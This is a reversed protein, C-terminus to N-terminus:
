PLTGQVTGYAKLCAAEGIRGNFQVLVRGRQLYRTPENVVLDGPGDFSQEDWRREQWNYLATRVGANPWTRESSFTLTLKTPQLPALELPLTLTMSVPVASAPLGVDNAVNCTPIAKTGFDLNLWGQGLTLTGQAVIRPRALLLTTQGSAVQANGTLTAAMPSTDLWAVLTPRPSAPLTGNDLLADVIGQRLMVQRDPINGPKRGEEIAQQFLLFGLRDSLPPLGQAEITKPDLWTAEAQQGPPIDGLRVVQQGYSVAVDHLPQDLPNVVRTSIGTPKITIEADIVPLPQIAEALLGRLSWAPVDIQASAHEGQVYSGDGGSIPGYQGSIARLPRLVPAGGFDLRYSTRNAGYMGVLTRVRANGSALPEVVTIQNLVTDSARFAFGLGFTVASFVLTIAPIILWGWNQLNLRRLLVYVAPGIVVFYVLLLALLPGASPLDLAPLYSLTSTLLRERADEVRAGLPGTIATSPEVPRLLRDWFAAVGNWSALAPSDAAFALQQVRGQGFPREVILPVDDGLAVSSGAEPTLAVGDLASLQTTTIGAFASLAAGPLSQTGGITTPQLEPPVGALSARADSGGGLVLQGGNAVWGVLALRQADSWASTDAHQILITSLGGLGLAQDPLQDPTLALPLLPLTKLDERRPLALTLPQTAILGLLREGSRARVKIAARALETTGDLLVVDLSTSQGDPLVYLTVDKRAGGPLDVDAGFRVTSQLTNAELRARLDGGGNQLAVRLPLWTGETYNGDYLPTVTMQVPASGQALVNAPLLLASALAFLGLLFCLCRQASHALIHM